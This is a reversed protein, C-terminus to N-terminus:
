AAVTRRPGDPTSGSLHFRFGPHALKKSSCSPSWLASWRVISERNFSSCLNSGVRLPAAAMSFRMKRIFLVVSRWEIAMM